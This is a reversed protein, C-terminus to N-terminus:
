SSEGGRARRTAHLQFEVARNDVTARASETAVDTLLPSSALARTLGDLAAFNPVRGHLRLAGAEVTVEDLVLQSSEPVHVTLERLVDLITGGAGLRTARRVAAELAARPAASAGPAAATATTQIAAVLRADHRTLTWRTLGFDAVALLLASAALAASRRGSPSAAAPARLVLAPAARRGFGALLGAVVACADLNEAHKGAVQDALSSTQMGTAQTVAARLAPSAEAGTLVLRPPIGLVGLTWRVETAFAAADSPDTSLARLGILRQDRWVGVAARIGDALVVAVGDLLQPILNAVALPALEIRPAPLGVSTIEASAAELESTRAVAALVATGDMTRGLPTYVVPAEAPTLPLQGLLELPVTRALRRRDRFPLTLLRHSVQALPLATLVVHPPAIGAVSELATCPLRELATMRLAGFTREGRAVRVERETIELALLRM